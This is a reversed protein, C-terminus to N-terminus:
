YSTYKQKLYYIHKPKTVPKIVQKEPRVNPNIGKDIAHVEPLTIGSTKTQSRTQVSYKSQEKDRIKYYRAHLM